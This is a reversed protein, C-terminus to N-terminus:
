KFFYMGTLTRFDNLKLSDDLVVGSIQIYNESAVKKVTATQSFLNLSICFLTFFLLQKM